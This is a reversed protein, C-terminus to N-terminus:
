DLSIINTSNEKMHLFIPMIRERYGETLIIITKAFHQSRPCMKCALRSEVSDESYRKHNFCTLAFNGNRHSLLCTHSEYRATIATTNSEDLFYSAGSDATPACFLLGCARVDIDSINAPDAFDRDKTHYVVPLQM